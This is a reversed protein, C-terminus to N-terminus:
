AIGIISTIGAALPTAPPACGVAVKTRTHPGIGRPWFFASVVMDVIRDGSRISSTTTRVVTRVRVRRVVVAHHRMAGNREQGVHSRKGVSFKPSMLGSPHPWNPRGNLASLIPRRALFHKRWFRVMIGCSHGMCIWMILTECIFKCITAVM